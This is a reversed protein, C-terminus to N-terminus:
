TSSRTRVMKDIPFRKCDHSKIRRSITKMDLFPLTLMKGLTLCEPNRFQELGIIMGEQGQAPEPRYTGFLYDWWPLNFGFNRNRERADISHHIRHMDPTVIVTRLLRDVSMPLWVNSHNFLAMGNLIVEFALVSVPSAGIVLVATLKILMSLMAEVPHFRVATTVDYDVDAHHILHFRWFVPVAHFAIHQLYIVLDLVIVALVVEVWIPWSLHNLIGWGQEASVMAIGVAGSAFLVQLGLGNLTAMSLNGVWRNAKNTVLQRRPIRNEFYTMLGLISLFGMLRITMESDM